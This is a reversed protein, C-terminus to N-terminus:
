APGAALLAMLAAADLRPTDDNRARNRRHQRAVIALRLAANPTDIRLCTSGDDTQAPLAAYAIGEGALAMELAKPDDAVVELRIDSHTPAWGAAVGGLLV